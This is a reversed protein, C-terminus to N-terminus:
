HVHEKKGSCCSFSDDLIKLMDLYKNIEQLEKYQDKTIYPSRYYKVAKVLKDFVPVIERLSNLCLDLEKKNLSSKLNPILNEM